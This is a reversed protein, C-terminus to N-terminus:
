LSFAILMFILLFFGFILLFYKDLFHFSETLIDDVFPMKAKKEAKKRIETIWEEFKQYDKRKEKNETYNPEKQKFNAYNKVIIQNKQFNLLEDYTRRKEINSLVEYAEQIDIFKEKANASNNKDPHWFKAGKRFAQKIETANSNIPISLIKYYDKM